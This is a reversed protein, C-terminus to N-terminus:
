TRGVNPNSSARTRFTRPKQDKEPSTSPGSSAASAIGLKGFINRLHADITRPSLFLQAAVEKSTAGTAVLRAIRLEQATLADTPQTVRKRPQEGTARLECDARDAFARVGMDSLMEHATRFQERADQRRGERRLWEGYILHARGLFTAFRCRSLHDIAERYLDEAAPGTTTLARSRAEVGLALPTGSSRARSEATGLVAQARHWARRDPDARVSTAEALAGHARRREAPDAARYVASRVLPHSFRVGAGVELLGAAEAPAIAEAGIGLHEAARWLLAADGVPDAAALLMMTQTLPPLGAARRQFSEEIRGPVSLEAPMGFGGAPGAPAGHRSLELLALPNGRAEALIRERVRDDLPAHVVPHLLARADADALGNLRLEPLGAFAMVAAPVPVQDRVGFVLALREAQVQRAVFAFVQASVLELWHADDVLCLLPEDEAAEALLGLPAM